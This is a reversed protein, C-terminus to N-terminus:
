QPFKVGDKSEDFNTLNHILDDSFISNVCYYVIKAKTSSRRHFCLNHILDQTMMNTQLFRLQTSKFKLVHDKSEDLITSSLM